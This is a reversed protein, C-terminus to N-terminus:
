GFRVASKKRRYAMFGLGLFALIMMAWTSPEPVASVASYAAGSFGGTNGTGVVPFNGGNWILWNEVDFLHKQSSPDPKIRMPIIRTSFLALSVGGAIHGRLHDNWRDMTFGRYM